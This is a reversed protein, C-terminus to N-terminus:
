PTNARRSRKIYRRVIFFIAALVLVFPWVYLLGIFFNLLGNWGGKIANAIKSGFSAQAAVAVEEKYFRLSVTSLSVQNQLYNLRGQKAEIEERINALEREIELMEKVNKAKSLLQLYREELTRKAKLRAKLDVFEEGVDKQSIRKTDFYDVRSSIGDVLAEFNESPVRIVLERYVQNYRKGTNDSQFSGNQDSVTKRVKAYTAELDRTQFEIDATKIIKADSKKTRGIDANDYKFESVAEETLYEDAYEESEVYASEAKYSSGDSCALFTGFLAIFFSKM